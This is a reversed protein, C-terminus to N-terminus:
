TTAQVLREAVYTVDKENFDIFPKDSLLDDVIFDELYKWDFSIEDGAGYIPVNRALRDLVLGSTDLSLKLGHQPHLMTFPVVQRGTLQALYKLSQGAQTDTLRDLQEVYAKWEQFKDPHKLEHISILLNNHKGVLFSFLAKIARSETPISTIFFRTVPTQKVM